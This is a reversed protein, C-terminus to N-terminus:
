SKVRSLSEDAAGPTVPDVRSEQCLNMPRELQATLARDKTAAQELRKVVQAVGSGDAYGLERAVAVGREGGLRVRAWVQVRLDAKDAM